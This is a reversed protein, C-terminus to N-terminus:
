MTDAADSVPEVDIPDDEYVVDIKRESYLEAYEKYFKQYLQFAEEGVYPSGDSPNSIDLGYWSGKDNKRGILHAAFIGAYLPTSRM